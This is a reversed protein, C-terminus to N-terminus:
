TPFHLYSLLSLCPSQKGMVAFANSSRQTFSMYFRNPLASLAATSNILSTGAQFRRDMPPEKTFVSLSRVAIVKQSDSAMACWVVSCCWTRRCVSRDASM